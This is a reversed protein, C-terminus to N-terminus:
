HHHRKCHTEQLLFLSALLGMICCIPLIWMADHYEVASYLRIGKESLHSKGQKLKNIIEENIDIGVVNHGSNAILLTTPLGIYGLGLITCTTM